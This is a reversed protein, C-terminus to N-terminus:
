NIICQLHKDQVRHRKTQQGGYTFSVRSHCRLRGLNVFLSEISYPHRLHATYLCPRCDVGTRSSSASTATTSFDQDSSSHLYKGDVIYSFLLNHQLSPQM